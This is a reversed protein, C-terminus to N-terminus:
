LGTDARKPSSLLTSSLSRIAWTKRSHFDYCPMVLDGNESHVSKYDRKRCLAFVFPQVSEPDLPIDVTQKHASGLLVVMIDDVPTVFDLLLSFLDQRKKLQLNLFVCFLVKFDFLM